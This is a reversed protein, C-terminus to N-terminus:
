LPIWHKKKAFRQTQKQRKQTQAKEFQPDIIKSRAERAYKDCAGKVKQLSEWQEPTFNNPNEAYTELQDRTMGTRKFIEEAKENLDDLRAQSKGIIESYDHSTAEEPQSDLTIDYMKLVEGLAKRIDEEGQSAMKAEVCPNILNM